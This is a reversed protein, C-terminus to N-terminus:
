DTWDHWSLKSEDVSRPRRVSKRQVWMTTGPPKGKPGFEDLRIKVTTRGYGVITCRCMKVIGTFYDKYRYSYPM